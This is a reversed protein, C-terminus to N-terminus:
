VAATRQQLEQRLEAYLQQHWREADSPKMDLAMLLSQGSQLLELPCGTALEPQLGAESYDFPYLRCILPRIELPLRCGQTGLFTCDGNPQRKLVRRSGDDQFVSNRWLPDDDQDAYEPNDPRRFESFETEGSHSEIRGVDGLTVFIESRQCCTKTMRACRVCIFEDHSM